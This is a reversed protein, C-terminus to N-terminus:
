NEQKLIKSIKSNSVMNIVVPYKKGVSYYYKKLAAYRRM